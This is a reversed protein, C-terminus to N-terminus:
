LYIILSPQAAEANILDVRKSRIKYSNGYPVLQHTATFAYIRQEDRYHVVVQQNSLITIDDDSNSEAQRVNGIVHSCRVSWEKSSARPHVFNRRRIEMMVRDDYVHSVHNVADPQDESAPIWYHADDTYLALWSDLDPRDLFGAEIYLFAEIAHLDNM